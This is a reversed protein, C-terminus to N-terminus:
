DKLPFLNNVWDSPLTELFSIAETVETVESGLLFDFLTKGDVRGQFTFADELLYKSLNLLSTTAGFHTVMKWVTEADIPTLEAKGKYVSDYSTAVKSMLLYNELITPNPLNIPTGPHNLHQQSEELFILADKLTAHEPTFGAHLVNTLQLYNVFFWALNTADTRTLWSNVITQTETNDLLQELEDTTIGMRTLVGLLILYQILHSERWHTNHPIGKVRETVMWLPLTNSNEAGGYKSDYLSGTFTTAAVLYPSTNTGQYDTPLNPFVNSTLLPEKTPNDEAEFRLNYSRGEPALQIELKM